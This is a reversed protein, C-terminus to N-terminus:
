KPKSPGSVPTVLPDSEQKDAHPRSSFLGVSLFSLRGGHDLKWREDVLKGVEYRKMM